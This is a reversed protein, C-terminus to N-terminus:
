RRGRKAPPRKKPKSRPVDGPEPKRGLRPVDGRELDRGLLPVGTLVQGYQGLSEGMTIGTDDIKYARLEGSHACGRQKVVAMARAVVGRVEVYRQLVIADTLFSIGTPSLRLEVYSEVLEATMIVTVGLETLAGLMRYLSERFDERYGPALALEFGSLSDIAIRKAGIELVLARIEEMTEEVSLDLPRLYMM